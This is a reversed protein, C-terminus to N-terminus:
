RRRLANNEPRAAVSFAKGNDNCTSALDVLRGNKWVERGSYAYRYKYVLYRVEISAKGTM